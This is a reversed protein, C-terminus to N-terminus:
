HLDYIGPMISKFHLPSEPQLFLSNFQLIRDKCTAYSHGIILGTDFEVGITKGHYILLFQCYHISLM